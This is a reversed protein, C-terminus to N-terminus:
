GGVSVSVAWSNVTKKHIPTLLSIVSTFGHSVEHCSDAFRQLRQERLVAHVEVVRPVDVAVFGDVWQTIERLARKAAPLLVEVFRFTCDVDSLAVTAHWPRIALEPDGIAGLRVSKAAHRTRSSSIRADCGPICRSQRVLVDDVVTAVDRILPSDRLAIVTGEFRM